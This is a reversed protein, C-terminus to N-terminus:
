LRIKIGRRLYTPVDLDEGNFLNQETEDFLGRNEPKNHDILFSLESYDVESELNLEQQQLPYPYVPLEKPTSKKDDRSIVGKTASKKPARASAKGMVCIDVYDKKNPDIVAGIITSEKSCFKGALTALAKNIDGLTLNKGGIINVLLREAQRTQQPVFLMPCLSLDDLAKQLFNEGEGQGLGYLTKGGPEAFVNKLTAFDINIMGTQRIVSLLAKVGRLVWQSAAQFAELVTATPELEQLLLDNPLLIVAGSEVRLELLANNAAEHKQKGELTFPLCAFCFVL